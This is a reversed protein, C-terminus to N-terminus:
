RFVGLLAPTFNLFDSAVLRYEVSNFIGQFARKHSYAGHLHGYICLKVAFFDMLETIPTKFNTLSFPPYHISVIVPRGKAIKKAAHLSLELRLCERRYIDFSNENDVVKGPLLWSRGSIIVAAGLDCCDNQLVICNKPMANRVKNIGSWWYDHNGRGLIKFGPRESIWDLDLQVDRINSAWSFDGPCLIIDNKNILNDWNKALVLFHNKWHDGFIDMRKKLYFSLHLDSIAWIRM